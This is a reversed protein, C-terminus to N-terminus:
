VSIANCLNYKWHSQFQTDNNNIIFGLLKIEDVFYVLYEGILMKNENNKLWLKDDKSIFKKNFIILKTKDNNVELNHEHAEGIYASIMFQISKITNAFISTDDIFVIMIILLVQLIDIRSDRTDFYTKWENTRPLLSQIKEIDKIKMNFQKIVLDTVIVYLPASQSNGQFVGNCIDLKDGYINLGALSIKMFTSATMYSNVILLFLNGRIKSKNWSANALDCHLISDFAKRTDELASYVSQCISNQQKVMIFLTSVSDSHSLKPQAGGQANDIHNFLLHKTENLSIKCCMKPIEAQLTIPRFKSASDANIKKLMATTTAITDM